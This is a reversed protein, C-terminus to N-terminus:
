PGGSPPPVTRVRFDIMANHRTRTAAITLTTPDPATTFRALAAVTRLAPTSGDAPQPELLTRSPSAVRVVIDPPTARVYMRRTGAACSPTVGRGSM